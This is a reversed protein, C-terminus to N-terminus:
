RLQDGAGAVAAPMGEPTGPADARDHSWCRWVDVTSFGLARYLTLAEPSSQLWAVRAGQAFADLIVAATLTAGFGRRRYAPITSVNYVGVHEGIAVGMATAVGDGGAFGVYCGVGPLELVDPSIGSAFLEPRLGFGTGAVKGFLSAEAATLRCVTLAEHDRLAALARPDTLAMLPIDPEREMGRGEVLGRADHATVTAQLCYPVGSAAIEDLVSGLRDRNLGPRLVWVGNWGAVPLFTNIGLAGDLQWLQNRPIASSWYAASAVFAQSVEDRRRGSAREVGPGTVVGNEWTLRRDLAFLRSASARHNAPASREPSDRADM